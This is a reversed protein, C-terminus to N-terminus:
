PKLSYELFTNVMVGGSCFSIIMTMALLSWLSSPTEKIKRTKLWWGDILITLGALVFAVATIGNLYNSFVIDKSMHNLVFFSWILPILSLYFAAFVPRNKTDKFRTQFRTGLIFIFGLLLFFAYESTRKDAQEGRIHNLAGLVYQSVEIEDMEYFGGQTTDFAFVRATTSEAPLSIARYQVKDASEIQLYVLGNHYKLHYKEIEALNRAYRQNEAYFADQIEMLDKLAKRAQADVNNEFLQSCSATFILLILAFFLRSINFKTM